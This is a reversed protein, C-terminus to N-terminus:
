PKDLPPHDPPLQKGSGASASGMMGGDGMAPHGPPMQNQGHTSDMPAAGMSGPPAQAAHKQLDSQARSKIHWESGQREMTYNMTMGQAAPAGKASFSVVADAEKDRFSVSVVNVDMAGMNLNNKSLDKIVGQKVADLTDINRNACGLLTLLSLAPIVASKV